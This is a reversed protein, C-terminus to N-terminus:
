INFKNRNKSWNEKTMELIYIDDIKNNKIVQKSGIIEYGLIGDIRLARKNTKFVTTILAKQKLVEFAYDIAYYFLYIAADIPIDDSDEGLYAGPSCTKNVEDFQTYGMYGIPKGRYEFIFNRKPAYGSVKKFWECHEDWNIKHDTLMVSHIRESNRWKLLLKLDKEEIPRISYEGCQM